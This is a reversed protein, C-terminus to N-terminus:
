VLRPCHAAIVIHWFRKARALQQRFNPKVQLLDGRAAARTYRSADRYAVAISRRRRWLFFNNGSLWRPSSNAAQKTTLPSHQHVDILVANKYVRADIWVTRQVLLVGFGDHPFDIRIIVVAAVALAVDYVPVMLMCM